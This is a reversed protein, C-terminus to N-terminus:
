KLEQETYMQVLEQLETKDMLEVYERAKDHSINYHTAVFEVSKLSDTTVNKPYPIYKIKGAFVSKIMHYQNEIPINSYRNIQNAAHVAYPSGSLWQCFIYSPIKNIDAPKPTKKPDLVGTMTKFMNGGM